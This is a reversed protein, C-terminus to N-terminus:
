GSITNYLFSLQNEGRVIQAPTQGIFRKLSRTLHAQDYYGADFVAEFITGGQRLINTALRAREIQRATSHTMGTARLFHRQATRVTAAEPQDLLTGKVTRDMVVLGRRVLRGVFAEANEFGPYEWASGNLWFARGGADPLIVDHRDSLDGPLFLPMFTGLKFRIAVWEGDPPLDATTAKTEPGRVILSTRGELRMVVMEWHCAAM